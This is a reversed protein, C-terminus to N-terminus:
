EAFFITWEVNLFAAIRKALAVSPPRKGNEINSYYQRSIGVGDAIQQQCLNMKKRQSKLAEM